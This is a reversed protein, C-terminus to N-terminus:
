SVAVSQYTVATVFGYGDRSPQGELSLSLAISHTATKAKGRETWHTVVLADVERATIAPDVLEGSAVAESWTLPEVVKQITVTTFARRAAWDGWDRQSPVPVASGDLAETVSYVALKPRLEVPVLGVVRPESSPVSESQVWALLDARPTRYEQTLLRTAFQRAYLDPQSRALGTIAPYRSSTAPAVSPSASLLAIDSAIGTSQAPSLAGTLSGPASVPPVLSGASPASRVDHRTGHPQAQHIVAACGLVLLALMAIVGGAALALRRGPSLTSFVVLEGRL